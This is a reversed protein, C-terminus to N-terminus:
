KTSSGPKYKDACKVIAGRILLDSYAVLVDTATTNVTIHERTLSIMNSLNQTYDGVTIENLGPRRGTYLINAVSAKLETQVTGVGVCQLATAGTAINDAIIKNFKDLYATVSKDILPQAETLAKILEARIKEPLQELFHQTGQDLGTTITLQAITPNIHYFATMSLVFCCLTTVRTRMNM